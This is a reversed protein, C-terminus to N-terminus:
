STVKLSLCCFIFFAYKNIKNNIAAPAAFACVLRAKAAVHVWLPPPAPIYPGASYLLPLMEVAGAVGHPQVFIDAVPPHISNSKPVEVLKLIM